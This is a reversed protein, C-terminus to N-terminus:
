MWGVLCTSSTDGNYLHPFQPKSLCLVCHGLPLALVWGVSEAVIEPDFYLQEQLSIVRVGIPM